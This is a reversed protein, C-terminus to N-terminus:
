EAELPRAEFSCPGSFTDCAGVISEGDFAGHCSGNTSPLFISIGSDNVTAWAGTFLVSTAIVQFTCQTSVHFDLQLETGLCDTLIWSGATWACGKVVTTEQDNTDTASLDDAIDSTQADPIKDGVECAPLFVLILLLTRIM